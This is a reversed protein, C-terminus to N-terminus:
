IEDKILKLYDRLLRPMLFREGVTKRAREGIKKALASDNILDVINESAEEPSRVLFGNSGDTIQTRIGGVDGAIVPKEKWMAESVTLGFGERKSKQLVVKSVAQIASTFTEVEIDELISVDGFVFIDPDGEAERLVEEYIKDAEPDDQAIIFGVLILQLNKVKKKAIRYSEIVGIPDKWIDFRSIQSIIPKSPNIKFKELIKFARSTPMSVNKEDLPDIAPSVVVARDKIEEKVFDKSSVIIKDYNRAVDSLFGWTEQNPSTLDVHIRLISPCCFDSYLTLGAPQFDHIIWVDPKMDETLKSVDKIYSFYEEQEKTSIKSLGGQLNNHIKKTVEFFSEKPPITFWEADIGVGKMLPVLSKLVEAVGGGESTSSVHFVKAGKLDESLDIVESIVDESVIKKYSELDIKKTKVLPLM